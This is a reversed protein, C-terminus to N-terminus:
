DFLDAGLLSRVDDPLSKRLKPNSRLLALVFGRLTSLQERTEKAGAQAMGSHPESLASRYRDVGVVERMINRFTSGSVTQRGTSELTKRVRGMIKRQERSGLRSVLVMAKGGVSRWDNANDSVAFAEVFRVFMVTRKGPYEGLVGVIFDALQNLDHDYRVFVEHLLRAREFDVGHEQGQLRDWKKKISSTAKPTFPNVEITITM